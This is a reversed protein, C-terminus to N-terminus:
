NFIEVLKRGPDTVRMLCEGLLFASVGATNMLAIEEASCIGGESILLIEKPIYAALAMSTSIDIAGTNLNQNHIAIMRVPIGAVKDLEQLNYVGIVVDMGLDYSLQTLERLRAYDLCAALLLICDAGMACSEFVQYEDIIFDRRLIPLSTVDRTVDLDNENGQFFRQETVVSLCTAGNKEYEEAIFVPHYDKRLVGQFPCAKKLEAIIANEGLSIKQQLADYFGRVSEVNDVILHEILSLPVAKKNLAVERQKAAIIDQLVSSMGISM